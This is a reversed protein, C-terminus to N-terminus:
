ESSAGGVIETIEQTIKAQRNRNYELKLDNILDLANDSAQEMATRRMSMEALKSNYFAYYM